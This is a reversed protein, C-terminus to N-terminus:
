APVSVVATNKYRSGSLAFKMYSQNNETINASEVYYTQGGITIPQNVKPLMSSAACQITVSISYKEDYVTHGIDAGIEDQLPASSPEVREEYDTVVGSVGGPANRHNNKIGWSAKLNAM